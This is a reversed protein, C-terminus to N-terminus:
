VPRGESFLQSASLDIWGHQERDAFESKMRAAFEAASQADAAVDAVTSLYAVTARCAERFGDRDLPDGHGLLVLDLEGSKAEWARVLGIWNTLTQRLPVPRSGAPRNLPVVVPPLTSRYVLDILFAARAAPLTTVLAGSSEADIAREFLFRMSDITEAGEDLLHAPVLAREPVADGLAARRRTLLAQGHNRIYNRVGALAFVPADPFREHLVGAGAWHDPHVETIIIRAVPKGIADIIDAAELAYPRLFQADFVVLRSPGEVIHTNVLFGDAGGSYTHVAAGAVRTSSVKGIRAM